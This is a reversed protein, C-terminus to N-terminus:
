ARIIVPKRRGWWRGRFSTRGSFPSTNKKARFAKGQFVPDANVNGFVLRVKVCIPRLGQADRKPRRKKEM